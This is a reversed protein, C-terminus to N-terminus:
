EGEPIGRGGSWGMTLEVLCPVTVMVKLIAADPAPVVPVNTNMILEMGETSM